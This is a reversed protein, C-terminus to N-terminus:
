GAQNFAFNYAALLFQEQLKIDFNHLSSAADNIQEFSYM